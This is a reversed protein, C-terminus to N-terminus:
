MYRCPPHRAYGDHGSTAPMWTKNSHASSLRPHGSCTRGHRACPGRLACAIKQDVIDFLSAYKGGGHLRPLPVMRLKRLLRLITSPARAEVFRKRRLHHTSDSAGEVM